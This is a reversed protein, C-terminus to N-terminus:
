DKKKKSKNGWNSAGKKRCKVLAGSAYASPWVDYRAKVKHYCADKKEELHETEQVEIEEKKVCNNYTKGFMKKTGKKEYGPWCNKKEELNEEHVMKAKGKRDPNPDERRKKAARRDREDKSMAARDDADRCFPKTTQGPQKACPKGDYKGGTQKWGGGKFWDHLSYGKDKASKGDRAEELRKGSRPDLEAGTSDFARKPLMKKLQKEYAAKKEDKKRQEEGGYYAEKVEEKKKKDHKKKLGMVPDYGAVPGEADAAGTFGGAGAAMMEEKVQQFIRAKRESLSSM